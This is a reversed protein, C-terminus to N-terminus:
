VIRAFSRVGYVNDVVDVDSFAEYIIKIKMSKRKVLDYTPTSIM